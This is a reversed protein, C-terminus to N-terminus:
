ELCEVRNPLQSANMSFGSPINGDKDKPLSPWVAAAVKQCEDKTLGGQVTVKGDVMQIFLVTALAVVRATTEDKTM